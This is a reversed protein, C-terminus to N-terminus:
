YEAPRVDRRVAWHTTTANDDESSWDVHRMRLWGTPRIQIVVGKVWIGEEDGAYGDVETTKGDRTVTRRFMRFHVRTGISYPYNPEPARFPHLGDLTQNYMLREKEDFAMARGTFTGAEKDLAIIRIPHLTDRYDHDTWECEAEDGVNWQFRSGKIKKM